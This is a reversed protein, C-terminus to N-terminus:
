MIHFGKDSSLWHDVAVRERHNLRSDVDRSIMCSVDEDSAPYFRWFMSTWDGRENMLFVETNKRKSLKDITNKPTSGGVYYRCIWDPYITLALDANKVAGVTYKKEKGWLSFCILKKM